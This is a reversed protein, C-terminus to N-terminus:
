RHAGASTEAVAPTNTKSERLRLVHSGGERYRMPNAKWPRPGAHPVPIPSSTSKWHANLVFYPLVVGPSVQGQPLGSSFQLKATVLLIQAALGQQLLSPKPLCILPNSHSFM